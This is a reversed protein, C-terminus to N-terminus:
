RGTTPVGGDVYSTGRSVSAAAAILCAVITLIAGSDGVPFAGGVGQGIRWALLWIAGADPTAM